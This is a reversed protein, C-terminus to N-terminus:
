SPMLGLQKLFTAMDWYDSCRRIKHGAFEFISAGRVEIHKGTAPMGPLDGKHTGRMVWEAGGATGAAFSSRLEFTVDPFGSFFGEAFARLEVLGRNVVGLTVDEYVVDESFLQLLRGLDHASWHEAWERIARQQEVLSTSMVEAM